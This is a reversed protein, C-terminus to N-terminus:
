SDKMHREASRKTLLSLENLLIADLKTFRFCCKGHLHRQLEPSVGDLLDPFTHVPMLYFSVSIKNVSTAAFFLPKQKQGLKKSNLYYDTDTDQEVICNKEYKKLIARLRKFIASFDDRM